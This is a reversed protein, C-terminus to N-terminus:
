HQHEAQHKMFEEASVEKIDLTFAEKFFATLKQNYVQDNLRQAEEQNKLVNEAIKEIEEEPMMQGYQAM